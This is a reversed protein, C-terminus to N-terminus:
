RAQDNLVANFKFQKPGGGPLSLVLTNGSQISIVDKDNRAKEHQMM